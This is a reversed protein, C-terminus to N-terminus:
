ITPPVPTRLDGGGWFFIYFGGVIHLNWFPSMEYQPGLIRSHDKFRVTMRRMTSTAHSGICVKKAYPFLFIRFINPAVTRHSWNAPITDGRILTISNRFSSSFFIVHSPHAIRISNRDSLMFPLSLKSSRSKSPLIINFHVVTILHRDWHGRPRLRLDAAARRSLNHTRIVGPAHVNTQQSQQTNDPLPRQSPNIM